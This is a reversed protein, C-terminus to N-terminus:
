HTDYYTKMFFYLFILVYDLIYLLIEIVFVSPENVTASKSFM